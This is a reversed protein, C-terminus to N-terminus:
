GPHPTFRVQGYLRQVVRIFQQPRPGILFVRSQAHQPYERARHVIEEHSAYSLEIRFSILLGSQVFRLVFWCRLNRCEGIPARLVRIEHPFRNWVANYIRHGNDLDVLTEFYAKFAGRENSVEMAMDQAYAANFGVWLLIFRLDHDETEQESRGLWSIARHIRLGLPEPFASRVERQKSKLIAHTLEREPPNTM